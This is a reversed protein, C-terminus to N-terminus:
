LCSRVKNKEAPAASNNQQSEENMQEQMIMLAYLYDDSESM